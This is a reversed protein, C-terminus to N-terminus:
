DFFGLKQLALRVQCLPLGLVTTYSGNITKLFQAGYGEITIAGAIKLYQPVAKFYHEIWEDGMDFTYTASVFQMIREEVLWTGNKFKKRDLCFATGCEGGRRLAKIKKIADEKDVPKGHIVGDIDVGMTDATLVYCPSVSQAEQPLLVHDMKYLAIREIVKQWPLNWDCQSEDASQQVLIYPIQADKLLQQRAASSSALYLTHKM